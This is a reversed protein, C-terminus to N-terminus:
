SEAGAKAPKGALIPRAAAEVKDALARLSEVVGRVEAPQRALYQLQNETVLLEEARQLVGGIEDRAFLYLQEEDPPTPAAAAAKARAGGLKGQDRIGHEGLLENLSKEGVFKLAKDMLKRAVADASDLALETSDVPLALLEPKSLRSEEAFVLALRMYFTCQKHGVPAHAKIWPGFEGYALDAKIRHLLLGVLIARLAADREMTRVLAMQELATAQLQSIKGAPLNQRETLILATASPSEKKKAM